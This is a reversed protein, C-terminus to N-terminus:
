FCFSPSTYGDYVVYSVKNSTLGWLSQVNGVIKLKGISVKACGSVPLPFVCVEGDIRIGDVVVQLDAVVDSGTQTGKFSGNIRATLNLSKCLNSTACSTQDDINILGEVSGTVGANISSVYPLGFVPFQCSISNSWRADGIVKTSLIVCNSKDAPCVLNRIEATMNIKPIKSGSISCTSLAGNLSNALGKQFIGQRWNDILKVLGSEIRASLLKDTMKRNTNVMIISAPLSIGNYTVMVTKNSTALIAPIDLVPPDFVVEHRCEGSFKLRAVNKVIVQKDSSCPLYFAVLNDNCKNAPTPFHLPVPILPTNGDSQNSSIQAFSFNVLLCTSLLM